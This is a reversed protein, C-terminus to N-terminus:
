QGTQKQAQAMQMSTVLSTLADIKATLSEITPEKTESPSSPNVSSAKMTAPRKSSDIRRKEMRPPIDDVPTLQRQLYWTRIDEDASAKGCIKRLTTRTLWTTTKPQKMSGDFGTLVWATPLRSRGATVTQLPKSAVGYVGRYRKADDRTFVVEGKGLEVPCDSDLYSMAIHFGLEAGSRLEYTPRERTGTQVIFQHGRGVNSFGLIPEGKKTCVNDEGDSMAEDADSQEQPSGDVEMPQNIQPEEVPPIPPIPPIAFHWSDPYGHQMCFQKASEKNAQLSQNNEPSASQNAATRAFAQLTEWEIKGEDDNGEEDPGRNKKNMAEIARNIAKLNNIALPDDPAEILKKIFPTAEEKFDEIDEPPDSGYANDKFNEGFSPMDSPASHKRSRDYDLKKAGDSLIEYAKHVVKENDDADSDESKDPHIVKVTQLYAKRIEKPKSHDPIGLVGYYDQKSDAMLVRNIVARQEKTYGGANTNENREADGDAKSSSQTADRGRKTRLAPEAVGTPTPKAAIARGRQSEIRATDASLREPEPAPTAEPTPLGALANTKDNQGATSAM